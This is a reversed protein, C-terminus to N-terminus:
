LFSEPRYFVWDDGQRRELAFVGALRRGCLKVLWRREEHEISEYRGSDVIRVDGRGASIPGEYKLFTKRHDFIRVARVPECRSGPLEQLRWTAMAEAQELMLDWHDGDPHRHHHLVFRRPEADSSM